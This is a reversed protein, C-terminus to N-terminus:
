QESKDLKDLRQDLDTRRRALREEEADLDRRRRNITTETEDLLQKARHESDKLTTEVQAKAELRSKEAEIQALQLVSTGRTKQTNSYYAIGGIAGGTIGAVLALVILIVAAAGDM